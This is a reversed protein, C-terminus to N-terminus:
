VIEKATIFIFEDRDDPDIGTIEFNRKRYQIRWEPKLVLRYRIKFKQVRVMQIAAGLIDEVSSVTWAKAWVTATTVWTVTFGGMGDSVRTPYQLAIRRNLEGISM